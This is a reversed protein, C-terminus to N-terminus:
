WPVLILSILMAAAGANIPSVLNLPCNLGQVAAVLDPVSRPQVTGHTGRYVGSGGCLRDLRQGPHGTQLVAWLPLAGLFAGALTGWSVSMLSTILTTKNAAIVVSIVIFVVILIRIWLVQTKEKMNKRFPKILDITLTSSSTLVLSSLTSMSASLVLVVVVGMLIDPLAQGLMDPVIDDYSAFDDVYLRGLGGLFYSGGAVVLAFITSIVAGRTVAPKDKIAYFKQVMQPLAWTGLSTLIVVGLLNLPDPGFLSNLSNEPVGVDSIKGLNTLATFIGGQGNVAFIVVAAIGILMIIGQVFDNIATATYGGWYWM